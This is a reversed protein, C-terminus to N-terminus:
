MEQSMNVTPMVAVLLIQLQTIKVSEMEMSTIAQACFPPDQLIEMQFLYTPLVFAVQQITIADLIIKVIMIELAPKM